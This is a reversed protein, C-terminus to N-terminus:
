SVLRRNQLMDMVLCSSLRMPRQKLLYQRIRGGMYQGALFTAVFVPLMVWSWGLLLLRLGIALPVPIHVAMIWQASLRKTNSRWYGFFINVVFISILVLFLTM